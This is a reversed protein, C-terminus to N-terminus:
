RGFFRRWGRNSAALPASMDPADSADAPARADGLIGLEAFSSHVQDLTGAAHREGEGLFAADAQPDYAVRGSVNEILAAVRTMLAVVRDAEDGSSWYPVTLTLEDGLLSVQMGTADDSLERTQDGEFLEADPLVDALGATIREWMALGDPTLQPDDTAAEELADMVESWSQGPQRTVFYLDFSM